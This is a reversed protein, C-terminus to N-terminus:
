KFSLGIIYEWVKFDGKLLARIKNFVARTQKQALTIGSECFLLVRNFAQESV